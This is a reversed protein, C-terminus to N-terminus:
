FALDTDLHFSDKNPAFAAAKTGEDSALWSHISGAVTLTERSGGCPTVLVNGIRLLLM